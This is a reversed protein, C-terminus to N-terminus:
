RKKENAKEMEEAVANARKAIEPLAKEFEAKRKREQIAVREGTPTLKLDNFYIGDARKLREGRVLGKVILEETAERTGTFAAGFDPTGMKTAPNLTQALTYSTHAADPEEYIAMLIESELKNFAPPPRRM